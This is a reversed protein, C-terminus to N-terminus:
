KVAGLTLGRVIYRQVFMVLITPPLIALIARVSLAGFQVGQIQRAGAILLPITTARDYTLTLAFIFENWSFAFCLIGASVIAPAALPMAIRLLAGFRSCGDVLASEEVEYPLSLFVDRMLLTAIPISFTTHAIILSLRTDLLHFFQIMLFIPIVVVVPPIFLQSLVWMAIDGEKIRRFRFRAISYGALIGLILAIGTSCAAIILSNSLSKYVENGGTTLQHNWNVLTPKYGIFPFFLPEISEKPTKFSTSLTWFIPFFSILVAIYILARAGLAYKKMTSEKHERM